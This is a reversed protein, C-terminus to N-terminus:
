NQHLLRQVEARLPACDRAVNANSALAVDIAASARKAAATRDEPRRAVRADVLHLAAISLSAVAQGPDRALTAAGRALGERVTAAVPAKRRELWEARRRSLETLIQLTEPSEGHALALAKRAATEARAFAEKPDRGSAELWRAELGQSEGLYMLSQPDGPNLALSRELEARSRALAQGADM